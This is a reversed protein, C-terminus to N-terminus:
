FFFLVPLSFSEGKISFQIKSKTRIITSSNLKSFLSGRSSSLIHRYNLTGSKYSANTLLYVKGDNYIAASHLIESFQSAIEPSHQKLLNMREEGLKRSKACSFSHPCHSLLSVDFYRAFINNQFPFAFGSSNKYAPMVFDNNKKSEEDFNESFFPICCSPYGLIKGLKEHNGIAEYNKAKLSNEIDKSIYIFSHGEQRTTTGKSSYDGSFSLKIKFDSLSFPISHKKCFNTVEDIRTEHISIRAAPKEGYLTDFVEVAKIMSHFIDFLAEISIVKKEEHM